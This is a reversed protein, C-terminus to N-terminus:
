AQELGISKINQIYILLAALKQGRQVLGFASAQKISNVVDGGSKALGIVDAGSNQAQLLYSSFDNAVWPAYVTGVVSGGANKVVAATNDRLSHGFAYDAAIFFWKKGGEKVIARATATATAHVDYTYHIGYKTCEKETFATSG